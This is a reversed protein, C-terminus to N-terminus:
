ADGRHSLAARDCLVISGSPGVSPPADGCPSSSQDTPYLDPRLAHRSIGFAQEAKIVYEGPLPKGAKLWNSVNQQKAGTAREFASQTGAIQVAESFAAFASSRQTDDM